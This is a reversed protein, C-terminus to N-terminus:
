SAYQKAQRNRNEIVFAVDVVPKIDNRMQALLHRVSPFDRKAGDIAANDFVDSLLRKIQGVVRRMKEDTDTSVVSNQVGINQLHLGLRACFNKVSEGVKGVCELKM